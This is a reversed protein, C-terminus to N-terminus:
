RSRSTLTSVIGGGLLLLSPVAAVWAGTLRAAAAQFLLISSAAALAVMGGRQLWSGRAARAALLPLALGSLGTALGAAARGGPPLPPGAVRPRAIAPGPFLSGDRLIAYGSAADLFGGDSRVVFADPAHAVPFFGGVDVRAAFTILLAAVWALTAGGLVSSVSTALPSRGLSAFVRGEGRGWGPAQGLWTGLAACAPALPLVRAAREGWGIGGEDTAATVLWALVLALFAFAAARAAQRADWATFAYGSDLRM